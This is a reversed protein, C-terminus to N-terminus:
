SNNQYFKRKFRCIWVCIEGEIIDTTSVTKQPLFFILMWKRVCISNAIISFRHTLNNKKEGASKKALDNILTNLCGTVNEPM